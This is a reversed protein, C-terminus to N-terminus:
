LRFRVIAALRRLRLIKGGRIPRRAVVADVQLVLPTPLMNWGASLRAPPFACTAGLRTEPLPDRRCPPRVPTTLLLLLAAVVMGAFVFFARDCM